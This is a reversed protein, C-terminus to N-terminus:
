DGCLSSLAEPIEYTPLLSSIVPFQNDYSITGPHTVFCSMLRTSGKKTHIHGLHVIPMESSGSFLWPGSPAKLFAKKTVELTTAAFANALVRGEKGIVIGSPAYLLINGNSIIKGQIYAPSDSTVTLYISGTEDPFTIEITEDANVCLSDLSLFTVSSPNLFLTKETESIKAFPADIAPLDGLLTASSILFSGIVRKM